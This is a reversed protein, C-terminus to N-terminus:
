CPDVNCESFNVKIFTLLFSALSYVYYQIVLCLLEYSFGACNKLIFRIFMIEMDINYINLKLSLKRTSIPKVEKEM